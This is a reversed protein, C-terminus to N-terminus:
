TVVFGQPGGVFDNFLKACINTATLQRGLERADSSKANDKIAEIFLL